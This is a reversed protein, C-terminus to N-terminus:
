PLATDIVLRVGASGPVVPPTVGQLDGSRALADGTKSIRAVVSVEPFDSLKRTATMAMSDDLSFTAPLDKVQVRMAALPMGRAGPAHAYLFVTDNPSVASALNKELSVVGSISKGAVASSTRASAVRTDTAALRRARDINAAVKRAGESDVPLLGLLHTWLAIAGERNGAELEARGALALAQPNDPDLQLARKVLELPKGQLRRGSAMALAVAHEAWVQASDPALAALKGYAAVAEAYRGSETYTRALMTWATIDQPNMELYAALRAVDAVAPDAAPSAVPTPAAKGASLGDPNGLQLYLTFAAV